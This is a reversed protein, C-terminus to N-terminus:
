CLEILTEVHHTQPFMDFCQARAIKWPRESNKQLLALDRSLSAPDCSLYILRRPRSQALTRIVFEHAGSRPPDLFVVSDPDIPHRRLFDETAACYFRAKKPSVHSLRLREQAIKVSKAHWEVARLRMRPFAALLPFSFNGSGAYYEDLFFSEEQMLWSKLAEIIMQNVSENVQSFGEAEILNESLSTQVQGNKLLQLELRELDTKKQSKLDASIKPIQESLPKELLPCSQIEVLSHTGRQYFGLRGDKYKLQVRNRYEFDNPSASIQLEKLDLGTSLDRFSKQLFDRVIKLKQERQTAESLHQWDCGGCKGFVPCIPNKRQASAHLVKVIEANLYRNQVETVRVEVLDGPAAYPVFVVVGDKRGLAYPGYAM